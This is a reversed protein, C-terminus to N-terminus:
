VLKEACIPVSLAQTQEEVRVWYRGLVRSYRGLGTRCGGLFRRVSTNRRDDYRAHSEAGGRCHSVLGMGLAGLPWVRGVSAM